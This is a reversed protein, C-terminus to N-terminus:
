QAICLDRMSEGGGGGGGGGGGWEHSVYSVFSRPILIKTEVLSFVLFNEQHQNM